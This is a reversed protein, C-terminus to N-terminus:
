RRATYAHSDRAPKAPPLEALKRQMLEGVYLQPNSHVQQETEERRKILDAAKHFADELSASGPLAYCIAYLM